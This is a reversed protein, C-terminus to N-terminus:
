SAIHEISENRHILEDRMVSQFFEYQNAPKRGYWVLFESEIPKQILVDKHKEIFRTYQSFAHSEFLYNLELAYKKDLMYLWYAAWFYFFSFLMPILTHILINAHEETRALKSIVIVHMTENDQAVRSFVTLKCLDMARKENMYFLTLLTYAASEWSHYPIRAIVEVARFKLYSPEKGYFFNGCGVLFGGLIRPLLSPRYHDHKSKYENFFVPDTLKAVLSEQAENYM